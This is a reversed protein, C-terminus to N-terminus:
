KTEVSLRLAAGLLFSLSLSPPPGPAFLGPSVLHYSMLEAFQKRAM